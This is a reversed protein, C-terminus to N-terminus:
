MANLMNEAMTDIEDKTHYFRPRRYDINLYKNHNPGIFYDDQNYGVPTEGEKVYEATTRVFAADKFDEINHRIIWDIYTCIEYTMYQYGAAVYHVSRKFGKAEAEDVSMGYAAYDILYINYGAERYLEVIDRMAQTYGGSETQGFGHPYTLVFLYARKQVDHCRAIVQSLYGYYSDGNESENGVHVDAITGVYYGSKSYVDNSAMSIIYADCKNEPLGVAEYYGYGGETEPKLWLKCWM